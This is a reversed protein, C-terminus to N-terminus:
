TGISGARSDPLALAKAIGAVRKGQLRAVARDEGSPPARNAGQSVSSAGYPTGAKFMVPDTYGPPVIIMGFHAMPAFMTFNCIENGGHVSSSSTFASGVKGALKGQFWLSGLSDLFAKLEAALLGFRTPSGFIIADAWTMDDPSPAEYIANMREASERWGPVAAMTREDVLERLRRLRVDAGAEAAGEAVAGALAETSGDRSYFVILVKPM